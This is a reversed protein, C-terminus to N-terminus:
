SAVVFDVKSQICDKEDSADSCEKVGNCLVLNSMLEGSKCHFLTHNHVDWTQFSQNRLTSKISFDKELNRLTSECCFAFMENDDSLIQWPTLTKWTNEKELKSMAMSTFTREEINVPEGEDWASFTLPSGDSWVQTVRDPFEYDPRTMLGILTYADSPNSKYATYSKALSLYYDLLLGRVLQQEKLSKLNVLFSNRDKCVTDYLMMADLGEGHTTRLHYCKNFEESCVIRVPFNNDDYHNEEELQYLITTKKPLFDYKLHFGEPFPTSSYINSKYPRYVVVLPATVFYIDGRPRNSNCFSTFEKIDPGELLFESESFCSIDFDEFNLTFIISDTEADITWKFERQTVSNELAGFLFRDSIIDMSPLNCYGTPDDWYCNKYDTEVIFAKFGTGEEAIETIPCTIFTLFAVKESLPFSPMKGNGSSNLRYNGIANNSQFTVMDEIIDEKSLIIVDECLRYNSFLRQNQFQYVHLSILAFRLAAFHVPLQITWRHIATYANSSPYKFSVLSGAQNINTFTENFIIQEDKDLMIKPPNRTETDKCGLIEFKLCPATKNQFPTPFIRIYRATCQDNFLFTQPIDVRQSDDYIFPMNNYRELVDLYNGYKIYFSRCGRKVLRREYKNNEIDDIIEEWNTIVLGDISTKKLLDVQIFPQKDTLGACWGSLHHRSEKPDHSVQWSSSTIQHDKIDHNRMGLEQNCRVFGSFQDHNESLVAIPTNSLDESRNNRWDELRSRFIMTVYRGIVSKICKYIMKTPMDGENVHIKKHRCLFAGDFLFSWQEDGVFIRLWQGQYFDELLTSVIGSVLVTYRIDIMIWTEVKDCPLPPGILFDGCNNVVTNIDIFVHVIDPNESMDRIQDVTVKKFTFYCFKTQSYSSINVTMNEILMPLPMPYSELTVDYMTDSPCLSEVDEQDKIVLFPNFSILSDMTENDLTQIRSCYLFQIAAYGNEEVMKHYPLHGNENFHLLPPLQITMNRKSFGYPCKESVGFLGYSGHMWNNEQNMVHKASKFCFNLQLNYRNFPGLIINEIVDLKFNRIVNRSTEPFSAPDDFPQKTTINIYGTKWGMAPSEPCGDKSMLLAFSGSPFNSNKYQVTKSTSIQGDLVLILVVLRLAQAM